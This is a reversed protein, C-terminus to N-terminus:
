QDGTKGVQECSLLQGVIFGCEVWANKFRILVQVNDLTQDYGSVILKYKPTILNEVPRLGGLHMKRSTAPDIQKGQNDVMYQVASNLMYVPTRLPENNLNDIIGGCIGMLVLTVLMPVIKGFFSTSFVASDSLPIQLLGAISIFIMIWMFAIDFRLSFAEYYNYHLLDKIGPQMVNLLRPTIRLPLNVTLWAFVSAAIAWVLLSLLPKDLRASLWGAFGGIITCLIVGIPFKLWPYLGNFHALQYADIGWAFIAFSFGLAMGFWIGYIIKARLLDPRATMKMPVSSISKM